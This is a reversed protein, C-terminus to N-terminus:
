CRSKKYKVQALPLHTVKHRLQVELTINFGFELCLNQFYTKHHYGADAYTHAICQQFKSNVYEACLLTQILLFFLFLSISM